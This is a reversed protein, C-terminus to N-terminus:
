SNQAEVSQMLDYIKRTTNVNRVTMRQYINTGIIKGMGSKTINKKDLSWLIAGSVYKVTDIEPKVPLEELVSVDDDWLFMVESRMQKDNKWSAPLSTVIRKINEMSCVLVKISLDFNTYIAEELIHSIKTKSAEDVAFIVNGSNIYTVVSNMGADEFVKKLSKMDIKNRGGVNIGRLLAVYIM